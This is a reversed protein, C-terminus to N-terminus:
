IISELYKKYPSSGMKNIINKFEIENIFNNKLAIEELCFSKLGTRKEIAHFFNSALLLSEPTGADFWSSNDDIKYVQLTKNRNKLYLLNLDTIELEGRSSPKLTKALGVADNDYFYLGTVAYNSKPNIPKEEINTAENKNFEIVGYRAPDKVKYAFIRAGYQINKADKVMKFIDSGYFLNDGLFLGINSNGIFKEGLILSEAIGNPKKQIAYEIRIGWDSGDGLLNLYSKYQDPSSIILIDSIGATMALGLPYFIMPKDYVPLLQKSISNTLPTLRSGTGGALIIGKTNM